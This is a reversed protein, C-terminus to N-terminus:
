ICQDSPDSLSASLFSVNNILLRPHNYLCILYRFRYRLVFWPPKLAIVACAFLAQLCTAPWRFPKKLELSLKCYKSGGPLGLITYNISGHFLAVCLVRCVKWEGKAWSDIDPFKTVFDNKTNSFYCWPIFQRSGNM